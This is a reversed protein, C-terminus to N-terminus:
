TIGELAALNRRMTELYDGSSCRNACTEFVISTLGKDKLASLNEALPQGEWVIFRATRGALKDDLEALRYYGVAAEPQWDLTVAEVGLRRILYEYVPHSFVVLQGALSESVADLEEELTRLDSELDTLGANFREADEPRAASLAAAVARAQESALAPDLWTEAAWGSHSHEGEPGHSHTIANALPLLRDAYAAGTDITRSAPLAAREAWKAYGNGHLLILDAQQYQAVVEASPSWLSPDRDAPTPLVALVRDGGIRQAMYLLPYNVVYVVLRGEADAGSGSALTSEPEPSGCGLLIALFLSALLSLFRFM